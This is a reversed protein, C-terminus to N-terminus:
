KSDTAMALIERAVKKATDSRHEKLLELASVIIASNALTESVLLNFATEVHEDPIKQNQAIKELTEINM